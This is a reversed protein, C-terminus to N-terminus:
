FQIKAAIQLIRPAGAGTISGFQAATLTGNPNNLNTNNFLNFAEIRFLVNLREHIAFQKFASLDTNVTGPGVIPDRPSNGYPIGAPLQQYSGTNFFENIKDLKSRGSGLLPNGIVNPRDTNITDLNSDVNSLINFPNGTSLTEIANVQWGSFLEKGAIGFRDVKPLAYIVSAVFHQPVDLTSLGRDHGIDYQDSLGFDTASGPDASLDDFAKSWVYSADLSLGRAFRRTVTLQLSNYSSNAIPDLMSISSSYGISYYPRRNPANAKTATANFLPANQDRNVYFHRGLNGVYALRTGWNAGYQQELTLNFQQLYPITSSKPRIGAFTANQTFTAHAPDVVYPFPSTPFSTQGGYPNVFQTTNNLAVSLTFPQQELNGVFPEQSFSYFIGYGGRLSTKGGGFVDWAFGVRPAFKKHSAYLLGPPCNPDGEVVYGIPASPFRVSHEGPIFNGFTMGGSFPYYVEWRVGLNATFNRTVRWDDQIFLSPDWAVLRHFSGNNQQFTQARGMVFDALANGTITGNFTEKSSSLFAATEQYRNFIYAGGFKITHARRSWNFTDEIGTSLQSTTNPRGGGETFYGTVTALPQTALAGGNAITMGLDSFLGTKFESTTLSKNLTYFVTATNVANPSVTWNEGIVYNSQNENTVGGSFDLIQNGNQTANLLSGRSSFYTFQLHHAQSLQYDLRATGQDANTPNSVAQADPHYINQGSKVTTLALDAHPVYKLMNQTAVDVPCKYNPCLTTKPKTGSASFDGAREADSPVVIASPNVLTSQRIRLGQYSLFYFLKGNGPFNHPVPLPGGLGGGFVNYVFKQPASPPTFYNKSNFIRNRAYDYGVGHVQNAGSRTIVNVVAGPYRGFEADFNSTLIRFQLLADPAPVINGGGRFFETDYAGDLYFSNFNPRVGNTSFGTGITDGIQASASYNTIGPVLQVLDYANRSSLPLDVIRKSDVTEGIQSERTDILQNTSEVTVESSTAGLQMTFSANLNQNADLRLGTQTATKFGPVVVTVKFAGPNLVPFIYQGISNSKVSVTGNTDLNTATIAAGPIMAGSSDAITGYISGTTTQTLAPVASFPILIAITSMGYVFRQCSLRLRWTVPM